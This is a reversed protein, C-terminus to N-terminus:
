NNCEIALSRIIEPGYVTLIKKQDRDIISYKGNCVKTAADNCSTWSLASGNCSISFGQKGDPAVMPKVVPGCGILGLIVVIMVFGTKTMKM